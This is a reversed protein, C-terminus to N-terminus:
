NDVANYWALSNQCVGGHLVITGTLGCQPSFTSPTTYADRVPDLLGNEQNYSFLGLLSDASQQPTSDPLSGCSGMRQAMTRGDPFGRSCIVDLEAKNVAQPMVEGSPQTVGASAAGGFAAAVFLVSYLTFFLRRSLCM